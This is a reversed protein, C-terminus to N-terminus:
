EKGKFIRYLNYLQAEEEFLTEFVDLYFMAKKEDEEKKGKHEARDTYKLVNFLLAGKIMDPNDHFFLIFKEITELIGKNYHDPHKVAEKDEKHLSDNFSDITNRFQNTNGDIRPKGSGVHIPEKEFLDALLSQEKNRDRVSFPIGSVADRIENPTDQKSSTFRTTHTEPEEEFLDVTSGMLISKAIERALEKSMGLDGDYDKGTQNNEKFLLDLLSEEQGDLPNTPRRGKFNTM